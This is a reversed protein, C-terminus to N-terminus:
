HNKQRVFVLLMIPSPSTFFFIPRVLSLSYGADEFHRTVSSLTTPYVKLSGWMKYGTLVNSLPHYRKIELIVMTKSVRCLENIVKGQDDHLIHHLTNLCITLDFARDKISLGKSLDQRLFSLFPAKHKERAVQLMGESFDIGVVRRFHYRNGLTFAFDGMGCGADLCSEFKYRNTYRRVISIIYFRNLYQWVTHRKCHTLKGSDYYGDHRIAIDSFIKEVKEYYNDKKNM